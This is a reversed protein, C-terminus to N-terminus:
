PLAKIEKAYRSAIVSAILAISGMTVLAISVTTYGAFWGVFLSMVLVFGMSYRELSTVRARMEPISITQVLAQNTTRFATQSAAYIYIILFALPMIFSHSFLVVLLSSALATVLVIKGKSLGYGFTSLLIAM